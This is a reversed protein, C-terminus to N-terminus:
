NLIDYYDLCQGSVKEKKPPAAVGDVIETPLTAVGRFTAFPCSTRPACSSRIATLISACPRTRV